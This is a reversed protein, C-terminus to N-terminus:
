DCQTCFSNPGSVAWFNSVEICGIVSTCGGTVNNGLACDTCQNGNICAQCYEMFDKCYTLCLTQSLCTTCGTPCAVCISNTTEAYYGALCSTYCLTDTRLFYATPSSSCTLCLTQSFCTVCGTPCAVCTRNSSSAFTGALCSSYCLNDARLYYSSSCTTCVTSSSCSDCNSPCSLISSCTYDAAIGSCSSSCLDLSSVYYPYATPCIKSPIAFSSVGLRAIYNSSAVQLYNTSQSLSFDRNGQAM